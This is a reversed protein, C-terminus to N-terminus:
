VLLLEEKETPIYVIYPVVDSRWLKASEIAEGGDEGIGVIKEDWIALYKGAYKGEFEAEQENVWTHWRLLEEHTPALKGTETDYEYKGERIQIAM